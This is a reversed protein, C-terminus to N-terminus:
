YSRTLISMVRPRSSSPWLPYQPFPALHREADPPDLIRSFSAWALSMLLVALIMVAGIEAAEFIMTIVYVYLFFSGVVFLLSLVVVVPVGGCQSANTRHDPVADTFM